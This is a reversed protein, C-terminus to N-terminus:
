SLATEDQPWPGYRSSFGPSRPRSAGAVSSSVPALPSFAALPATRARLLATRATRAAGAAGFFSFIWLAILYPVWSWATAAPPFLFNCSSSFRFRLRRSGRRWCATLYSFHGDGCCVCCFGAWAHWACSFNLCNVILAPPIPSRLLLSLNFDVFIAPSNM